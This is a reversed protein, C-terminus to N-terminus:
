GEPQIYTNAEKCKAEYERLSGADIASFYQVLTQFQYPLDVSQPNLHNFFGIFIRMDGRKSVKLASTAIELETAFQLQVGTSLETQLMAQLMDYSFITFHAVMIIRMSRMLMPLMTDQSM